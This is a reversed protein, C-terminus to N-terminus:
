DLRQVLHCVHNLSSLFKEKCINVKRLDPKSEIELILIKNPCLMGKGCQAQIIKNGMTIETSLKSIKRGYFPGVFLNQISM